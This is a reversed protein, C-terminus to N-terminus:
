NVAYVVRPKKNMIEQIQCEFATGNLLARRIDGDMLAGILKGEGDTVFLVREDNKGISRMAEKISISPSVMLKRILLTNM